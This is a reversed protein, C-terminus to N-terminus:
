LPFPIWGYALSSVLQKLAAADTKMHAFAIIVTFVSLWAAIKM